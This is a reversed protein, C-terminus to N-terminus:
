GIVGSGRLEALESESLGLETGLVDDTHEGLTPPPTDPGEAVASMKVPNGATLVPPGSPNPIEVLM